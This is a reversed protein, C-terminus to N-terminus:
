SRAILSGSTTTATSAFGTHNLSDIKAGPSCSNARPETSAFCPQRHSLVLRTPPGPIKPAISSLSTITPVWPLALYRASSSATPCDRGATSSPTRNTPQKRLVTLCLCCLSCQRHSSFDSSCLRAESIDAARTYLLFRRQAAPACLRQCDARPPSLGLASGS